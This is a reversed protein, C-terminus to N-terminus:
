YITAYVFQLSKRMRAYTRKGNKKAKGGKPWLASPWSVEDPIKLSKINPATNAGSKGNEEEDCRYHM